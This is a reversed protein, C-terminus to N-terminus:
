LLALSANSYAAEGTIERIIPLYPPTVVQEDPSGIEVELIALNEHPEEFLDLECYHSQYVFCLRNKRIPNRTDDRRNLLYTYERPSIHREQEGRVIDSRRSKMTHTYLHAGGQGRSRVREQWQQQSPVLYTQEIDVSATHSPLSTLVFKSRDVLFRREIELPEPIGLIRALAQRVRYVKHAFDQGTDNEIVTLHPHGVWAALTKEDLARAESVTEKRAGNNVRTYHKEAGMAATRLHIVGAYADRLHVHSLMSAMCLATFAERGMYAEADCAGRDCLLVPRLASDLAMAAKSYNDERDRQMHLLYQQFGANGRSFQEPAFGAGFLETAMEPVVIPTYGVEQLWSSLSTLSTSKGACPGGTLVIKPVTHM